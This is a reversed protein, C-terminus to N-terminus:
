SLKWAVLRLQQSLQCASRGVVLAIPRMDATEPHLALTLPSFLAGVPMVFGGVRVIRKGILVDLVPLYYESTNFYEVQIDPIITKKM